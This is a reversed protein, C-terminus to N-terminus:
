PPRFVPQQPNQSVGAQVGELARAVLPAATSEANCPQSETRLPKFAIHVEGLSRTIEVQPHVPIANVIGATPLCVRVFDITAIYLVTNYVAKIGILM